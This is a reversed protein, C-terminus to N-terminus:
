GGHFGSGSEGAGYGPYVRGGAGWLCDRGWVCQRQGCGSPGDEGFADGYGKGGEGCSGRGDEMRGRGRWVDWQGCPQVYVGFARDATEGGDEGGGPFYGYVTWDYWIGEGDEDQPAKGGEKAGGWWVGEYYGCLVEAGWIRRWSCLGGAGCVWIERKREGRDGAGDDRVIGRM